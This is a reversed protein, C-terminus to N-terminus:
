LMEKPLSVARQIDAIAEAADGWKPLHVMLPANGRRVNSLQARDPSCVVPAVTVNSKTPTEQVVDCTQSIVAVGCPTAFKGPAGGIVAPIWEIDIVDGQRLETLSSIREDIEM